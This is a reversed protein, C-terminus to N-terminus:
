TVALECSEVAGDRTLAVAWPTAPDPRAGLVRAEIQYDELRVGSSSPVVARAEEISSFVGLVTEGIASRETVVYVLASM